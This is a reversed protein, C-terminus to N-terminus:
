CCKQIKDNIANLLKMQNEAKKVAIEGKTVYRDPHNKIAQNKYVKKWLDKDSLMDKLFKLEEDDFLELSADQKNGKKKFEFNDFDFNDWNFGKWADYTKKAEVKLAKNFKFVYALEVKNSKAEEVLEKIYKEELVVRYFEANYLNMGTDFVYSAVKNYEKFVKIYDTNDNCHMLLYTEDKEIYKFRARKVTDDYVRKQRALTDKKLQETFKDVLKLYKKNIKYFEFLQEINHYYDHKTVDYHALLKKNKYICIYDVCDDSGMDVTYKGGTFLYDDEKVWKQRTEETEGQEVAYMKEVVESYSLEKSLVVDYYTYSNDEKTKSNYSDVYHEYSNNINLDDIYKKYAEENFIFPINLKNQEITEKLQKHTFEGAIYRTLLLSEREDLDLNNDNYFRGTRLWIQNVLSITKAWIDTIDGVSDVIDDIPPETPTEDWVPTIVNNDTKPPEIPKKHAKKIHKISQKLQRTSMQEVDNEQIFNERDTKPITTLIYLKETGLHLTAKSNSFEDAIKMFKNATQRTFDVKEELFMLFHGHPLNNKIQKLRKGIEIINTETERKLQIIELTLKEIQSHDLKNENQNEM